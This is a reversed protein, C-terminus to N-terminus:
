ALAERTGAHQLVEDTLREGVEAGELATTLRAAWMAGSWAGTQLLEPVAAAYTTTGFLAETKRMRALDEEVWNVPDSSGLAHLGLVRRIDRDRRAARGVFWLGVPAVVLLGIAIPTLIPKTVAWERAAYEGTPPSWTVFGILLLVFVAAAISGGLWRRLFAHRVVHDSWALPIATYKDEGDERLHVVRIAWLPFYLFMACEVADDWGWGVDFHAKCFWTGIGNTMRPM